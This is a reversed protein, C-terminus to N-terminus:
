LTAPRSMPLYRIGHECCLDEDRGVFGFARYAPIAYVSANVTFPKELSARAKMLPLVHAWLQRAYGKGHHDRAVFLHRVHRAEHLGIVGIIEGHEAQMVYYDHHKDLLYTLIADTSLYREFFSVQVQEPSGALFLELMDHIMTSIDSAHESCAPVIQTCM